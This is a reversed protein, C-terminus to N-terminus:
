SSIGQAGYLHSEPKINTLMMTSRSMKMAKRGNCKATSVLCVQLFINILLIV